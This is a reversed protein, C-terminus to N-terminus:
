IARRFCGHIVEEYAKMCIDTAITVHFDFIDKKVLNLIMSSFISANLMKIIKKFHEELSDIFLNKRLAIRLCAMTIPFHLIGKNVLNVIIFSFISTKLAEM